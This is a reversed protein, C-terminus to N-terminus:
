LLLMISGILQMLIDGWIAATLFGLTIPILFPLKPTIWVKDGIKGEKNWKMLKNFLKEDAESGSFKVRREVNGDNEEYQHMLRVHKGKIDEIKMMYGTFAGLPNSKLEPFSVTFLNRIFVTIPVILTLVVANGLVALSFIPSRVGTSLPLITGSILVEPYLPFLIAIAILSKADAGGFGGVRFIVYVLVYIFIVGIALYILFYYDFSRVWFEIFGLVIGAGGLVYWLQNPARRSRWDTVCSYSLIATCIIIRIINLLNILEWPFM